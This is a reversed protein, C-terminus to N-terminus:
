LACHPRARSGSASDSSRLSAAARDGEAAGEGGVLTPRALAGDRTEGPMPVRYDAGNPTEDHFGRCLAQVLLRTIEIETIRRSM